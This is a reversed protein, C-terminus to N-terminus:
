DNDVRPALFVVFDENELTAPYESKVNIKVSEGCVEFFNFIKKLYDSSYKCPGGGGYELEPKRQEGNYFRSLLRKARETKGSVMFINALDIVGFFEKLIIEDESVQESPESLLKGLAKVMKQEVEIKFREVM